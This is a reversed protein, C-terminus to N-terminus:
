QQSTWDNEAKVKEYENDVLRDPHGWIYAVSLIVARRIGAADLLSIVDSAVIPKVPVAPPPPSILAAIGPSFLHQHYDAVPGSQAHPVSGLTVLVLLCSLFGRKM